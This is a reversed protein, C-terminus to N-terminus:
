PAAADSQQDPAALRCPELALCREYITFLEPWETKVDLKYRLANYIQPVLFMDAASVQTDFAFDRRTGRTLVDFASLGERIFDVAWAAQAAPDASHRKQARPTQLPATDSNITECLSRIVARELPTGPFLAPGKLSYVEEIWEFIAMSETLHVRESELEVELVPISGLPSLKRHEPTKHELKLLNVPVYDFPVQKHHLAWRVRWSASSRWYGHLRLSKAETKFRGWKV